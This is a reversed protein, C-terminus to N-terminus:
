CGFRRRFNLKAGVDRTSASVLDNTITEKTGELGCLARLITEDEVQERGGEPRSWLFSLATSVNLPPETELRALIVRGRIKGQEQNASGSSPTVRLIRRTALSPSVLAPKYTQARRREV